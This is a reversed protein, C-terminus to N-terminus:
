FRLDDFLETTVIPAIKSTDIDKKRIQEERHVSFSLYMIAARSLKL